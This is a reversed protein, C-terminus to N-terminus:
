WVDYQGNGYSRITGGPLDIITPRTAIYDLQGVAIQISYPLVETQTKTFQGSINNGGSLIPLGFSYSAKSWDPQSLSPFSLGGSYQVLGTALYGAFGESEGELDSLRTSSLTITIYTGFSNAFWQPGGARGSVGLLSTVDTQDTYPGITIIPTKGDCVLALGGSQGGGRVLEIGITYGWGLQIAWRGDPDTYKHPNNRCYVYRNLSQPDTLDPSAPDVTIFRGISPDYYRAGYYYLGSSDVPKGTYRYEESGSVGYDVGYPKYNGSFVEGGTSNTKLRTSGLHDQHYYEISGARVEAIQTMGAYVRRAAPSSEYIINLGSYVNVSGGSGSSWLLVRRGDGDYCYRNQVVGGSEVATLRNEQDYTFGWFTGSVNRSAMNGNLDWTYVDSGATLVENMNSYTYSIASGETKWARNGVEDYVYQITGWPGVTGNLRDVLDYTYTETSSGNCISLVSGSADYSYTLDMLEKASGGFSGDDPGIWAESVRCCDVYATCAGCNVVESLGVRVRDPIYLSTDRGYISCVLSGGVYLEGFGASPDGVWHLQVDYWENLSPSSSSYEVVYGSGDRIQLTWRVVGGTRRWGAYAVNTDSNSLRVLHIRDGDEVIGSQTVKFCGRFWVEGSAAISEHCYANETGGGGNSTFRAGYSGHHYQFSSVTASEGTSM